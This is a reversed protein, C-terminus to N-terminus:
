RAAFVVDDLSVSPTMIQGTWTNTFGRLGYLAACFECLVITTVALGGGLVRLRLIWHASRNTKM